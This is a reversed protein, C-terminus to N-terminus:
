IARKNAWLMFVEDADEEDALGGLEIEEDLNDMDLFRIQDPLEYLFIHDLDNVFENCWLFYLAKHTNRTSYVLTNETIADGFYIHVWADDRCDVTFQDNNGYSMPDDPDANELYTAWDSDEDEASEIGIIQLTRWVGRVYNPLTFDRLIISM